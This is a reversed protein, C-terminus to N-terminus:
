SSSPVIKDVEKVVTSSDWGDLVAKLQDNGAEVQKTLATMTNKVFETRKAPDIDLDKLGDAIEKVLAERQQPLDQETLEGLRETAQQALAEPSAKAQLGEPSASMSPAEGPM